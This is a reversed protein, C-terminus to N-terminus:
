RSGQPIELPASLEARLIQGDAEREDVGLRSLVLAVVSLGLLCLGLVGFTAGGGLRSALVGGAATGLMLLVQGFGFRLAMISGRNGSVGSELLATQNAIAYISNGISAAFMLLATFWLPTMVSLLISGLGTIVLGLAVSRMTGIRSVRSLILAGAGIGLGLSFQLLGYASSGFGQPARTYALVVLAPFSISIFFAGGAAMLLHPRAQRVSWARSLGKFAKVPVGGGLPGIGVILTGAVAFTIADAVFLATTSRTSLLVIVAIAGGAAWSLRSAAAVIATARGIVDAGVVDALAAQRAPQVVSELMALAFFAPFVTAFGVRSIGFPLSILVGARVFELAPILRERRWRDPLAGGLVSVLLAAAAQVSYAAAIVLPQKTSGYLVAMAATLTLPDGLSSIATSALLRGFSPQTVLQRLTSAPERILGREVVPMPDFGYLQRLANVVVPDYWRGARATIDLVGEAPTMHSRRYIREATITDFSDAVALIRGGLPIDEGKLGRPYGTGDWREHHFRVFPAASALASHKQIMDAGIDPHRRMEEWEDPTLPGAKNLISDRVGIKGLDHLSGATRLLEIERSSLGLQDGLRAALEAVRMSHSETYRDRADLAQAALQLTQVRAQIQRQVDALNARVSLVFGFLGFSLIYGSNSPLYRLLDYVVGGAFCLLVTSRIAGIGVNEVLTKTLSTGSVFAFLLATLPYNIVLTGIGIAIAKAPVDILGPVHLHAVVFSPVGYSLAVNARNFLVAWWEVEKGPRRGDYTCLWVAMAPGAGPAVFGLAVLPPAVVMQMGQSWRIPLLAAIQVGAALYVIPGWQGWDPPSWILTAALFALSTAITIAVVRRAERPLSRYPRM